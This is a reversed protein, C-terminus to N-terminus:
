TNHNQQVDARWRADRPGKRASRPPSGPVCICLEMGLGVKEAGGGERSVTPDARLFDATWNTEWTGEGYSFVQEWHAHDRDLKTWTFRVKVPPGGDVDNGYFEGRAGQFGGVVPTDLTGTQTSVWYISWQRTTWAGAFYDFHHKRILSYGDDAPM